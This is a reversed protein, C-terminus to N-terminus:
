CSILYNVPLSFEARTRSLNCRAGCLNRVPKSWAFIWANRKTPLDARDVFRPPAHSRAWFILDTSRLRMDFEQELNDQRDDPFDKQLKDALYENLEPERRRFFRKSIATTRMRHQCANPAQQQTSHHPRCRSEDPWRPDKSRARNWTQAQQQRRKHCAEQHIAISVPTCASTPLPREQCRESTPGEEREAHREYSKQPHSSDGTSM